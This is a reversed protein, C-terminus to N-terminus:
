AQRRGRRALRIRKLRDRRTQRRKESRRQTELPFDPLLRGKEPEAAGSELGSQVALNRGPAAEKGATADAAASSVAPLGEVHPRDGDGANSAGPHQAVSTTWGVSGLEAPKAQPRDQPLQDKAIAPQSDNEDEADPVSSKFGEIELNGREGVM